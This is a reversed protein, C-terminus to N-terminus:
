NSVGAISLDLFILPVCFFSQDTSASVVEGVVQARKLLEILNGSLTCNGFTLVKQGDQWLYGKVAVSFDGTVRNAGSYLGDMQIVELYKDPPNKANKGQVVMHTGSVSISGAPSRSAHGTTQINFYNATVSNHFFSELVGDKILTLPKQEVGESDFLSKRFARDFQPHDIISIDKAIVEQGIKESWPNVKDIASKASFFNSFCEILSKLCDETFRVHYKGTALPRESLLNGSHYLSTNVVKKWDLDKFTHASHFDYYNAKKGQDDMLASSTITYIKDGYNTFRGKSSLYSSVYENESYSNYPVAVVRKDANKVDSELALSRKTKESIDVHEEPYHAVDVLSGRLDIISEHPNERGNEANDLAQKIMFRISEEDLAESFSVGVRHDKIVRIGLIQSSSVKYESISGKQASMKLSKSSSYILDGEAKQDALDNMVREMLEKV